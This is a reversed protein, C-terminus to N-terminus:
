PLFTVSLADTLNFGIPGGSTDRYWFQFNITSNPTIAPENTLDLDRAVMGFTGGTVIAPPLRHLSGSICLSGEGLPSGSTQNPGYFFLGFHGSPADRAIIRFDNAAVSTSGHGYITAGSGVSNPEGTCYNTGPVGFPTMMWVQLGACRGQIMDMFGDGDIDLFAFDHVGTSNWPLNSNNPDTMGDFNSFGRRNQLASFRRSCGPIDVDVDAVGLDLFGDLDLDEQHINGGFPQTLPSSTVTIVTTNITGDPNTSDNRYVYDQNDDVVYFDMRDDNNIDVARVMYAAPTNFTQVQSFFGGGSNILLKVPEFSGSGKLIDNWGDKNFDCVFSGTGFVSDAAAPSLRQSTEDTFHGTGDNILLRDNLPSAYDSFFLDLDGDNDVDGDYVACFKPGPAFLPSFWGVSETLGQYVGAADNGQNIWLRPQQFFTTAIVIDLWGDGNADFFLVDRSDDPTAFSPILSATRDTLVGNENMLLVNPLGGPNSFPVKRVIVVDFDGDHDLDGATMDKEQNDNIVAASASLRSNTAQTWTVWNSQANATPLLLAGVFTLSAWQASTKM